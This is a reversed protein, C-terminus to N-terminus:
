GKGGALRLAGDGGQGPDGDARHGRSFSSFVPVSRSLGGVVGKILNGLLLERKDM